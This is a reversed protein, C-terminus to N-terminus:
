SVFRSWTEAWVPVWFVSLPLYNHPLGILRWFYPHTHLRPMPCSHPLLLPKKGYLISPFPKTLALPIWTLCKSTLSVFWRIKCFVHGLFGILCELFQLNALGIKEMLNIGFLPLRTDCKDGGRVRMGSAIVIPVKGTVHRGCFSEYKETGHM